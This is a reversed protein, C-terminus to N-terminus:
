AFNPVGFEKSYFDFHSQSWRKAEDLSLPQPRGDLRAKKSGHVYIVSLLIYKGSKSKCLQSAQYVYKTKGGIRRPNESYLFTLNDGLWHHNDIIEDVIKHVSPIIEFVRNLVSQEVKSELFGFLVLGAFLCALLLLAEM